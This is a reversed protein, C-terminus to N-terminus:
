ALFAGFHTHKTGAVEFHRALRSATLITATNGSVLKPRGAEFVTDADLAFVSEAGAIGGKYTAIQGYDEATRELGDAKFCRYTISFFRAAGTLARLEENNVAMPRSSVVRPDLFGVEHCLRVFDATYLAGGICEGLLTAHSQAAASLRRDCYVDSFYLEGGNKLARFVGQLVKRKDPCLNIVCNSIAVDVSDDPVGAGKLDEILGQRFEMNPQPYELSECFPRVHARAVDLQEATMDVGIVFGSEGVLQAAVYCDQGSGSGLDLVTLRDLVLPLASGCGYYKSTIEDPVKALCARVLPHPADQATCASTKLDVTGKLTKGYYEQVVRHVAAEDGPACESASPGACCAVKAAPAAAPGPPCCGAQDSCSM